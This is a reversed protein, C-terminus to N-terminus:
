RQRPDSATKAPMDAPRTKYCAHARSEPLRKNLVDVARDFWVDLLSAKISQGWNLSGQGAAQGIQLHRQAGDIGCAQAETPLPSVAATMAEAILEEALRRDLICEAAFTQTFEGMLSRQGAMCPWEIRRVVIHQGDDFISWSSWILHHREAFDLRCSLATRLPLGPYTWPEAFIPTIEHDRSLEDMPINPRHSISIHGQPKKM